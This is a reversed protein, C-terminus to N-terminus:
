IKFRPDSKFVNVDIGYSACIDNVWKPARGRGTWTDGSVPNRYKPTVKGRSGSAKLAIKKSRGFNFQGMMDMLDKKSLGRSQIIKNIELVAKERHDRQALEAEAQKIMSHLDTKSLKNISKM